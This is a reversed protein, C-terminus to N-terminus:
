LKPLILLRDRGGLRDIRRMGKSREGETKCRKKFAIRMTALEERSLNNLEFKSILMSMDEHLKRLVDQVTVGAGRPDGFSEIVIQPYGQSNELKLSSAPPHVAPSTLEEKPLNYDHDPSETIELKLHYKTM